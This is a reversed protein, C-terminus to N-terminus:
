SWWVPRDRHSGSGARCCRRAGVGGITDALRFMVDGPNAMMGDIAAREIVIGDRPAPWDVALPVKRTRDIEDIFGPPVDLIELRRRAGALPFEPRRCQQRGRDLSIAGGGRRDRALYVRM